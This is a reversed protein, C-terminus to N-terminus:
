QVDVELKQKGTVRALLIKKSETNKVRIFDGRRGDSMAVVKLSAKILKYNATLIAFEGRRVAYERMLVRGTIVTNAGITRGVRQGILKSPDFVADQYSRNLERKEWRIDSPNLLEGRNITRKSLAVERFIRLRIMLWDSLVEVGKRYAKIRFLMNQFFDQGNAPYLQWSIKGEPVIFKKNNKMEISFNNKWSSNNKIYDTVMKQLFGPKVLTGGRRIIIRDSGKLILGKYGNKNLRDRIEVKKLVTVEKFEPSIGVLLGGCERRLQNDMHAVDQFKVSENYVVVKNKLYVSEASLLSYLLLFMLGTFKFRSM